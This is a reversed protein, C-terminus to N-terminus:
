RAPRRLVLEVQEGPKFGADENGLPYAIGGPDLVVFYGLPEFLEQVSNEAIKRASVLKKRFGAERVTYRLVYSM